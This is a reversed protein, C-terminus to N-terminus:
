DEETERSTEIDELTKQVENQTKRLGERCFNILESARKVKVTLVDVDIDGSEIEQVIEELEKIAVGYTLKTKAM